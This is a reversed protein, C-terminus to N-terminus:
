SKKNYVNMLREFDIELFDNLLSILITEMEKLKKQEDISFKGLVYDKTDLTRDHSIGVKLRKYDKTKLYKEIDKLGNHGGSSGSKRLRYTGFPLDLDDHIILLHDLDIHYFDVFKKVVKGSLNMYLQPELLIIKEGKYHFEGYLGHFKEKDITVGYKRAFSELFYFGINHRTSEYEKGPNGLGVILYM